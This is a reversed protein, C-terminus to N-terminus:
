NRPTAAILREPSASRPQISAAPALVAGAELLREIDEKPYGLDNELIQRTDQGIAPPARQASEEGDMRIPSRLSPIAVGGASPLSQILRNHILQPDKVLDSYENIPACLIDMARLKALWQAS